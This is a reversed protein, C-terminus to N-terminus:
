LQEVRLTNTTGAIHFPFGATVVIAQGERGLGMDRVVSKGFSALSEYSVEEETALIPHVGWVAALQSCTIPDTCVAFIPVGPRYSSVLRASFGSRTITLLAPADLDYTARVSASGVAHERPSAGGRAGPTHRIERVEDLHLADSSEIERAIDVLAQLAAVPHRGVATEGSLMVCDTGDLIANAVDSAEARTPRPNEIMSELMQTATIVPRALHNARRIIRKQALPVEEFPLEVGLDGRAVMVADSEVLIEDLNRLAQAKEIKSVVLARGRIREKLDRVDAARRVFSLSIYEAGMELGFELDRLDKPTLSPASVDVDPLNIGKRSKLLGGQVVELRVRGAEVEIGRLELLGDDLLVREGPNVDGAFGAYSTPIDGPQADDEHAIVVTSGRELQIPEPLDGVRIKPGCLDVLIPVRRGAAAAAARVKEINERHTSHEGHSMNIRAMDLGAAVLQSLVEPSSTAPGITCVTKTRRM